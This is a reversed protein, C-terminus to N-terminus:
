GDLRSLLGSGFGEYGVGFYGTKIMMRRFLAFYDLLGSFLRSIIWGKKKSALVAGVQRDVADLLRRGRNAPAYNSVLDSSVGPTASAEPALACAAAACRLDSDRQFTKGGAKWFTGVSMRANAACHVLCATREECRGSSHNRFLKLRRSCPATDTARGSFVPSVQSDIVNSNVKHLVRSSGRFSRRLDRPQSRALNLQKPDPPKQREM